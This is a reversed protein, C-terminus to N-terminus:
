EILVHANEEWNDRLKGDPFYILQRVEEVPNADRTLCNTICLNQGNVDYVVGGYPLTFQVEGNTEAYNVIEYVQNPKPTNELTWKFVEPNKSKEPVTIPRVTLQEVNNESAFEVLKELGSASDLVGKVLMTSLRVKYGNDHLYGVLEALDPYSEKHPSYIKRNAESDYHVVSLAITSLGQERWKKVYGDYKEREESFVLGNTQLEIEDFGGENLVELYQTMQEPYLTPEGKGTILATKVDSDRAFEVARRFKNQDVEYKKEIGNLPTMRSICFSCKANCANTGVLVSLSHAKM